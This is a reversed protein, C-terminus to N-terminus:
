EMIPPQLTYGLQQLLELENYYLVEQSIKGEGDFSLHSLGNINVKKGTPAVEGFIGTNTGQANWHLFAMNDKLYVEDTSIKLDPFATFFMQLHAKLETKGQAVKVGNLHRMFQSTTLDELVEFNQQNWCTDIWTGVKQTLVDEREKELNQNERKCSVVSVILFLFLYFWKKM